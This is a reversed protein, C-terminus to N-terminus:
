EKEMIGYCESIEVSILLVRAWLSRLSQPRFQLGEDKADPTDLSDRVKRSNTYNPSCLSIRPESSASIKIASNNQNTLSGDYVTEDKVLAHAFNGLPFSM